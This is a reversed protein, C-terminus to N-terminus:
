ARRTVRLMRDGGRQFAYPVPLVEAGYGAARLAALVPELHASTRGAMDLLPFVRVEAAVRALERVAALHFAADWQASYLFLLHSALALDVSDDPLGLAPLAETRYRGAERGTEYDELFRAMAALRLRELADPSEISTWVFREPEARVLAMIQARAAEIRGEIAAKDHAYLPDCAVAQWGREVAEATFSAPGGGVDLVRPAAGARAFPRGDLDFMARYEDFSRGWPLVETIREATIREAM